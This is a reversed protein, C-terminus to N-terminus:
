TLVEGILILCYVKFNQGNAWKVNSYMIEASGTETGASEAATGVAWM